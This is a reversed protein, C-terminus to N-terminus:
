KSDPQIPLMASTSQSKSFDKKCANRNYTRIAGKLVPVSSALSDEEELATMSTLKNNNLTICSNDMKKKERAPADGDYDISANALSGNQINM